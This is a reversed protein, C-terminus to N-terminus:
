WAHGDPFPMFTAYNNDDGPEVVHSESAICFYLTFLALLETIFAAPRISIPGYDFSSNNVTKGVQFTITFFRGITNGIFQSIERNQPGGVQFSQLITVHGRVCLSM